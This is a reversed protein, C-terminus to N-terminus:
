ASTAPVLLLGLRLLLVLGGAMRLLLREVDRPRHTSLEGPDLRLRLRLRLVLLLGAPLPHLGVHLVYSHSMAMDATHCVRPRAPRGSDLDRERERDGYLRSPGTLPRLGQLLDGGGAAAAALPPRGRGPARLLSASCTPGAHQAPGTYGLSVLVSPRTDCLLTSPCCGMCAHCPASVKSAAAQRAGAQDMVWVCRTPVLRATM